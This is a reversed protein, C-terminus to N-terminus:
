GKVARWRYQVRICIANNPFLNFLIGLSDGLTCTSASGKILQCQNNECLAVTTVEIFVLTWYMCIRSIQWINNVDMKRVPTYNRLINKESAEPLFADRLFVIILKRYKRNPLRVTYMWAKSLTQTWLVNTYNIYQTQTWLVNVISLLRRPGFFIIPVKERGRM